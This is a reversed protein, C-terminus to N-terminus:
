RIHWDENLPKASNLEGYGFGTTGCPNKGFYRPDKPETNPQFRVDCTLRICNDRAQNEFTGHLTFMGFILVDGPHFNTTLLRSKKQKAFDVPHVDISAKKDKHLVVDFDQFTKKIDTFEHSGEIIFLPGKDINIETFSIWCTLIKKTMRTFFGSDCHMHTFKGAAVARLFIFDFGIAPCKFLRSHFDRLVKGNTIKRLLKGSSVSKWFRGRDNHIQDRKSRGSYIGSEYPELVEDVEKLHFFVENKAKEIQKPNILNRILLYGDRNLSNILDQDTSNLLSTENLSGLIIKPIKIGDLTPEM